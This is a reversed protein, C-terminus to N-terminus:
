PLLDLQSRQVLGRHDRQKNSPTDRFEITANCKQGIFASGIADLNKNTEKIGNILSLSQNTITTHTTSYCSEKATAEAKTLPFEIPNGKAGGKGFYAAKLTLSEFLSPGASSYPISGLPDIKTLYFL